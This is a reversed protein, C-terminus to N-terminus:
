SRDSGSPSRRRQKGLRTGYMYHPVSHMYQPSKLLFFVALADLALPKASRSYRCHPACSAGSRLRPLVRSISLSFERIPLHPLKTQGISACSGAAMPTKRKPQLSKVSLFKLFLSSVRTACPFRSPASSSNRPLPLHMESSSADAM